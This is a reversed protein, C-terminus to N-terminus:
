KHNVHTRCSRKFRSGSGCGSKIISFHVKPSSDQFGNSSSRVGFRRSEETELDEHDQSSFGLVAKIYDDVISEGSAMDGSDVGVQEPLISYLEHDNRKEMRHGHEEHNSEGDMSQSSLQNSHSQCIFTHEDEPAVYSCSEFTQIFRHSPPCAFKYEHTKECVYFKQCGTEVDGYIGDKLNECFHGDSDIVSEMAAVINAIM